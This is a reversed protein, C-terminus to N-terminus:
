SKNDSFPPKFKTFIQKNSPLVEEAFWANDPISPFILQYEITYM